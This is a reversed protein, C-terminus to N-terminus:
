GCRTMPTGPRRRPSGPPRGGAGPLRGGPGIASGSGACASHGAYPALLDYAARGSRPRRDRGRGRRRRGLEAALVLHAPRAARPRRPSTTGHRTSRVPACCSAAIAPDDAATRGSRGAGDAAGRGGPGAVAAAGDRAPSRRTSRTCSWRRRWGLLSALRAEDEEFRDAMALWPVELTDLVMLGYPLRLREAYDRAVSPPRGCRRRRAWSPTPSRPSPRPWPSRASTGRTPGRDGDGRHGAGAAPRGHGSALAGRVRGPRRGHGAATTSGAPWRWPRRWWPRGSRSRRARLVARQGPSIMGPLAAADDDPPLGGLSRRLAVVVDDHVAGHPASQWLAGITM